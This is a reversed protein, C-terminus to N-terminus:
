QPLIYLRGGMSISLLGKGFLIDQQVEAGSGDATNHWKKGRYARNTIQGDSIVGWFSNGQIRIIGVRVMGYHTVVRETATCFYSLSGPDM